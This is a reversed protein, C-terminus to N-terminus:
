GGIVVAAMVAAQQAQQEEESRAAMEAITAGDPGALREMALNMLGAVEDIPMEVAPVGPWGSVDIVTRGGGKDILGRVYAPNVWWSKGKHDIVKVLV